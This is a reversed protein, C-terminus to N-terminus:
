RGDAAGEARLIFDFRQARHDSRGAFLSYAVPEIRPSFFCQDIALVPVPLPWTYSWGAGVTDYAHRYGAPLNQLRTAQRVANFDGVVLDPRNLNVLLEVHALLPDRHRRISSPLDVAMLQFEDGGVDLGFLLGEGQLFVARERKHIPFSSLIALSEDYHIECRDWGAERLRRSLDQLWPNGPLEDNQPPESLIVVDPQQEVIRDVVDPWGFIGYAVNWHVLRLPKGAVDAPRSSQPVRWHNDRCVVTLVPWLSLLLIGGACRRWRCLLLLLLLALGSGAVVPAPLHFLIETAAYRDRVIQGMIWLGLLVLYTLIGFVLAGTRWRGTHVAPFDTQSM